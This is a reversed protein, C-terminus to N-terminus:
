DAKLGRIKLIMPLNGDIEIITTGNFSHSNYLAKVQAKLTPDTIETLTPTSKPYFVSFHHTTIWTIWESLTSINPNNFIISSAGVVMENNLNKTESSTYATFYKCLMKSWAIKDTGINTLRTGFSGQGWYASFDEYGLNENFDNKGIKENKYVKDNEVDYEITDVYNGIKAFEYEGLSLQYTQPTQYPEYTDDIISSNRIMPKLIVNDYTQGSPIYLSLRFWQYTTDETIEFDGTTSTGLTKLVSNTGYYISINAGWVLANEISYTYTGKEFTYTPLSTGGFVSNATSTGNLKITGDDYATLTIGNLERSNFKFPLINKGGEIVELTNYHLYSTHTINEEFQLLFNDSTIYSSQASYNRISVYKEGSAITVTDDGSYRVFTDNKDFVVYVMKNIYNKNNDFMSGVYTKGVEVEIKNSSCFTNDDQWVGDNNWYGKQTNKVRNKGRVVEIEQPYSSNPSATGGVYKEYDNYSLSTNTTVMPKFVLNNATYGNVILISLRLQGENGTVEGTGGNGSDNISFAQGDVRRIYQIYNAWSGGNPCGVLKYTGAPLEFFCIDFYVDATATGNITYTGDANHTATVGSTTTTAMSCNIKNYGNYTTQQTDGYGVIDDEFDLKGKLTNSLTINSGEQFETKPFKAYIQNAMDKINEINRDEVSVGLQELAKYDNELHTGISNLDDSIAM